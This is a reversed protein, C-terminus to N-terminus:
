GTIDSRTQRICAKFATCFLANLPQLNGDWILVSVLTPHYPTSPPLLDYDFAGIAMISSTLLSLQIWDGRARENRKRKGDNPLCCLTLYRLLFQWPCTHTIEFRPSSQTRSASSIQRSLVHLKFSVSQSSISHDSSIMTICNHSTHEISARLISSLKQIFLLHPTFCRLLFFMGCSAVIRSHCPNRPKGVRM